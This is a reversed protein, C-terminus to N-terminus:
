EIIRQMSLAGISKLVNEEIEKLKRNVEEKIEILDSAEIIGNKYLLLKNLLRQSAFFDKQINGRIIGLLEKVEPRTLGKLVLDHDATSAFSKYLMLDKYFNGEKKVISIEQPIVTTGLISSDITSNFHSLNSLLHIQSNSDLVCIFKFSDLIVVDVLIKNTPITELLNGTLVDFILINADKIGVLVKCSSDVTFRSVEFTRLVISDMDNRNPNTESVKRDYGVGVNYKDSTRTNFRDEHSIVTLISYDTIFYLKGYCYLSGDKINKTLDCQFLIESKLNYKCMKNSFLVTFSYNDLWADIAENDQPIPLVLVVRKSKINMIVVKTKTGFICFDRFVKVFTCKQTILSHHKCERDIYALQKDGYIVINPNEVEANISTDIDLHEISTKSKLFSNMEDRYVNMKFMKDDSVLVVENPTYRVLRRIGENLIRRAKLVKFDDLTLIEVSNSTTVLAMDDNIMLGSFAAPKRYIEKKIELDYVAMNDSVIVAMKDKFDIKRVNKGIYETIEFVLKDKKLNYIKILGDSMVLGVVDVVSTQAMAVVSGFSYVFIKRNTNINYLQSTGNEFSILIKNAYSHPHFVDTIKNDPYNLRYCEKLFGDEEQKFSVTRDEEEGTSHKTKDMEVQKDNIHSTEECECIILEYDSKLIFSSGFILMKSISLGPFGMKGTIEGRVTRFITDNSCVYVFAGSQAICSISPLIPGLFQLKLCQLDYIAYSNDSPLLLYPSNKLVTISPHLNKSTLSTATRYFKFLSNESKICFLEHKRAHNLEAAPTDMCPKLSSFNKLLFASPVSFLLHEFRKIKCM